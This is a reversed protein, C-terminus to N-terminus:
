AKPLQNSLIKAKFGVKQIGHEPIWRKIETFGFKKYLKIAPLNVVATEVYAEECDLSEFLFELLQSAIGQRFFGPDVVLSCISLTVGLLEVEVVGALRKKFWLGFFDRNTKQINQATRALPPFNDTGILEAEKQYSCQFVLYILESIEKDSHNLRSIEIM